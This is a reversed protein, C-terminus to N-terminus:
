YQAIILDILNHEKKNIQKPIYLYGGNCFVDLKLAVALHGVLKQLVSAQKPIAVPLNIFTSGQAKIINIM